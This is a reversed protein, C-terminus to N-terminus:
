KRKFDTTRAKSIKYAAKAEEDGLAMFNKFLFILRQTIKKM